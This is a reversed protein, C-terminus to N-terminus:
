SGRVVIVGKMFPHPTCYFSYTGPKTFTHRWTKGPMINGSDFSKDSATVTHALPDNNKWEVTSGVTIEIRNQLYQINRMGSHVVRAAPTPRPTASVPPKTAGPPAASVNPPQAAPKDPSPAARSVTDTVPPIPRASTDTRASDLRRERVPTTDVAPQTVVTPPPPPPEHNGFYRGLTIPITFEFGYRVDKTGRSAGQLTNVTANTAQLSLTHPSMPIALHIGASWVVRESSDRNTLSAVDGALAVYTGLRITAGGAVAVREHGARVPDSLARGAVLLRAVGLRKAVSLEADAGDAANNYGVQGGIDAPAGFDESLPTWRAFFEYENPFRPALTSNTSYNLGVLTHWPLGAAVLFTPINSVKREPKSSSNFRHLFNFYVTGSAGTWNGSVNPPRDLLSQGLGTRPWALQAAAAALLVLNARVAHTHRSIRQQPSDITM